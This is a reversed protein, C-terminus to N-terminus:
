VTGWTEYSLVKEVTRFHVGFEAAQQKATKIYRQARIARVKQVNLRAHPLAEGRVACAKAGWQAYEFRTM